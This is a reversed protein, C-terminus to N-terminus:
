IRSGPLLIFYLGFIASKTTQLKTKSQKQSIDLQFLTNLKSSFRVKTEPTTRENTRTSGGETRKWVRNIFLRIRLHM